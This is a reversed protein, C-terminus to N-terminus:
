SEIEKLISKIKKDLDLVNKITLKDICEAFYKFYRVMKLAEYMEPAKSILLANIKTQEKDFPYLGSAYNIDCIVTDQTSIRKPNGDKAIEVKWKGKTYEM